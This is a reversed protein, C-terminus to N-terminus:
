DCKSYFCESCTLCGEQFVLSTSGCEPCKKSSLSKEGEKIYKKLVRGVGKSFSTFDKDKLLSDVIFQIPTEAGQHRLSLSLLRTAMGYEKEAGAGLDDIVVEEGNNLLKYHGKKSKVIGGEKDHFGEVPHAVFLEYPKDDLMGVLVMFKEGKSKIHHIECRLAYPRKPAIRSESNETKNKVANYNAETILVGAKSGERYVTVGKLGAKWTAMYIDEVDTSTADKPLNYTISISSDIYRQLVAMLQIKEMNNINHATSWISPDLNDANEKTVELDNDTLHQVVLDNFTFWEKWDNTTSRERRVYYKAFLPEVGGGGAECIMQLTGTPAHANHTMHAQFELMGDDLVGDELMNQIFMSNKIQERDYSPYSGCNKQAILNSAKYSYHVLDRSIEEALVLSRESGYRVKHHIFFDALGVFGLGVRPANMIKFRQEETPSRENEIEYLRFADLVYIMFVILERYVDKGYENYKAINISSLMCVNDDDLNIESCGNVSTIPFGVTDSNSYRQATDWFLLGPDGSKCAHKAIMTFLKKAQINREIREYKNEFYLTFMEDKEVKRMFDDDIMISINANELTGEEDKVSIFELIDPHSIKLSMLGAGRRGQQSIVKLIDDYTRMFSVAGTSEQSSNHVQAGRPRLKSFDAGEGQGFASYKSWKYWGRSIDELSDDIAGLTTCNIVSVNQNPNMASRYLGGAFGVWKKSGYEICKGELEPYYKTVVADIRKLPDILEKDVPIMYKSRYVKEAMESKFEM